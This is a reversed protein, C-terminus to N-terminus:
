CGFRFGYNLTEKVCGSDEIGEEFSSNDDGHKGDNADPDASRVEGYGRSKDSM